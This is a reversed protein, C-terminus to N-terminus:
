SKPRKPRRNGGLKKPANPDREKEWHKEWTKSKVENEASEQQREGEIRKVEEQKRVRVSQPSKKLFSTTKQLLKQEDAGKDHGSIDICVDGSITAQCALRERTIHFINGLLKLEGFTPPSLHDAGSTVKIICDSCTAFGGCSSKVYIDQERLAFLLPKNEAIEVIQNSPLITVKHKKDTM